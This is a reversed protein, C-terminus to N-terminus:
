VVFLTFAKLQEIEKKFDELMKEKLAKEEEAAKLETATKEELASKEKQLAEFKASWEKDSQFMKELESSKASLQATTDALQSAAAEVTQFMAMQEPAMFANELGQNLNEEFANVNNVLNPNQDKRLGELYPRVKTDVIESLGKKKEAKAAEWKSQMDTYQADREAQAKELEAKAQQEKELDEKMKRMDARMQNMMREYQVPDMMTQKPEQETSM